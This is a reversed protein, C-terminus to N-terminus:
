GRRYRGPPRSNDQRDDVSPYGDPIAQRRLPEGFRHHDLENRQEALLEYERAVCLLGQRVERYASSSAMGRLRAAEARYLEAPGPQRSEGGQAESPAACPMEVTTDDLEILKM